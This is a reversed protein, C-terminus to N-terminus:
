AALHLEGTDTSLVEGHLGGYARGVERNFPKLLQELTAVRQTCLAVTPMVQLLACSPHEYSAMICPNCVGESLRFCAQKRGGEMSQTALMPGARCCKRLGETPRGSCFTVAVTAHGSQLYHRQERFGLGGGVMLAAKDPQTCLLQLLLIDAVLSKGASTPAM